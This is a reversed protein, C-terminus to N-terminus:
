PFKHQLQRHYKSAAFRKDFAVMNQPTKGRGKEMCAPNDEVTKRVDIRFVGDDVILTEKTGFFFPRLSLAGACKKSNHKQFQGGSLTKRQAPTDHSLHWTRHQQLKKAAFIISRWRALAISQAASICSNITDTGGFM